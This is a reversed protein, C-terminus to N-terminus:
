KNTGRFFFVCFLLHCHMGNHTRSIGPDMEENESQSQDHITDNSNKQTLSLHKESENTLEEKTDDSIDPLDVYIMTEKQSQESEDNDDDKDKQVQKEGSKETTKERNEETETEDDIM